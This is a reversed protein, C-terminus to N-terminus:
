EVEWMSFYDSLSYMCVDLDSCSGMTWAEMAIMSAILSNVAEYEIDEGSHEKLFDIKSHISMMHTAVYATEMITDALQQVIESVETGDQKKLKITTEM